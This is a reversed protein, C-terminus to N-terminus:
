LTRARKQPPEVIEDADAPESGAVALLELRMAKPFTWIGDEEDVWFGQAKVKGILEAAESRLQEVPLTETKVCVTNAYSCCLFYLMSEHM